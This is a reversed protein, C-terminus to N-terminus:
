GRWENAETAEAMLALDRVMGGITNRLQHAYIVGWFDRGENGDSQLKAYYIPTKHFWFAGSSAPGKSCTVTTGGTRRVTKRHRLSMSAVCACVWRLPVRYM